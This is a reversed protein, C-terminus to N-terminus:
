ITTTIFLIACFPSLSLSLSFFLSLACSIVTIIDGLLIAIMSEIENSIHSAHRQSLGIIMANLSRYRRPRYHDGNSFVVVVVDLVVVVFTSEREIRLSTRISLESGTGLERHSISRAFRLRHQVFILM